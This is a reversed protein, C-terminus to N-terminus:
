SNFVGVMNEDKNRLDIGGEMISKLNTMYFLWGEGCGVYLNKSPDEELPINNQTLEVLVYQKNLQSLKVEVDCEDTFMFRFHDKGNLELVEREEYVSDPYGYWMWYFMDGPEYYEDPPRKSGDKKTAGASRLFWSELGKQTTWADYIKQVPAKVAIKKTFSKWQDNM